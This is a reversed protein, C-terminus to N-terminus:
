LSSGKRYVPISITGEAAINDLTYEFETLEIKIIIPAKAM